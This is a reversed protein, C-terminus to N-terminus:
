YRKAAFMIDKAILSGLHIFQDVCELKEGDVHLDIQAGHNNGILMVKTKRNNVCLRYKKSTQYEEPRNQLHNESLFMLEVDDAFRLVKIQLRHITM